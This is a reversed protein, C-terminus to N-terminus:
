ALGTASRAKGEDEGAGRTSPASAASLRSRSSLLLLLLLLALLMLALTVLMLALTVLMLALTVLVVAHLGLVGDERRRVGFARMACSSTGEREEREKAEADEAQM